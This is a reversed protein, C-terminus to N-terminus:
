QLNLEQKILEINHYFQDKTLYKVSPYKTYMNKYAPLNHIITPLKWSIAERIVLPSTEMLTTFVMLDAAQYFKDTDSREGWVICNKPLNQMLPEWYFAFNEAQNGVFHFKIKYKDMARAYEMLEKQNKGPTFLGVHIVHKFTPDFGLENMAWQKNPSNDDIPYEIITSPIGFCSYLESQYESVFTFRDPFYIKDEPKFYIGHYSEFILYNRSKKYIEKGLDPSIFGEPFEEFHVVDPQLDKIIDLLKSKPSDNLTIFRNKLLAAIKDRQVVYWTALQTYEVCYVDCTENLLELKKLLFQPMGGTSLHPAVCLVKLRTKNINPPTSIRSYFKTLTNAGIEAVAKWSYKTRIHESDLMALEKYKNYNSYVDRMVQSLHEFDPESYTGDDATNSPCQGKINVPLGRGSAFELQGSCKSYISPTGCAMAEILPLNVGEARSCSLFVHGKKLFKVYDNREPFHVVKIRPDTFGFHILRDETTKIGDTAWGNDVSLILDVPEDKSFTKIFTEILEKTSKRYDWRGFVVFKFRGDSYYSDYSVPEPYFADADVGGPVVKILDADFGQEAMCKRQWESPVWVEDFKKLQEFFHNPLRTSEWVPYAIKPGVYNDYYYYHDVVDSVINVHFAEKGCNYIPHDERKGDTGWLTQIHLVNRDVDNLYPENEHPTSNLGRWNDTVTFNRIRLNCHASLERYFSRFHASLGTTGIYSCHALVNLKM